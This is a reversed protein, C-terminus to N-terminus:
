KAAPVTAPADAAKKLNIDFPMGFFETSLKLEAGNVVGKYDFDFPMGAGFDLSVKFTINKGDVKGDKIAVKAGDAKFTFSVPTDGQPGQVTGTWKGDIDAAFAPACLVLLLM